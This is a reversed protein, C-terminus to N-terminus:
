STSMNMRNAQNQVSADSLSLDCTRPNDKRQIYSKCCRAFHHGKYCESYSLYKGKQSVFWM